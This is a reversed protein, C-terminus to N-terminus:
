QGVTRNFIQTMDPSSDHFVNVSGSANNDCKLHHMFNEYDEIDDDAALGNQLKWKYILGRLMIENDLLFLDTDAFPKEYFVSKDNNSFLQNSIYEFKLIDGSQTPVPDFEIKNDRILRFRKYITNQGWVSNKYLSWKDAQAPTLRYYNTKDWATDNIFRDFNTPLDYVAQNAITTIQYDFILDRFGGMPLLTKKLDSAIMRMLHKMQIASSSSTGFLTSMKPLGLVEFAENAINRVTDITM